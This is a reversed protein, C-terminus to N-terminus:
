FFSLAFNYSKSYFIIGVLNSLPSAMTIWVAEQSLVTGYAVRSFSQSHHLPAVVVRM